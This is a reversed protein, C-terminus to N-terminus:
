LGWVLLLVFVFWDVFVGCVVVCGYFCGVFVVFCLGCRGCCCDVDFGDFFGCVVCYGDFIDCFGGCCLVCCCGFSFGCCSVGIDCCWGCCKDCFLNVNLNGSDFMGDLCGFWCWSNCGVSNCWCSYDNDGVVGWNWGVNFVDSYCCVVLWCGDCFWLWCLGCSKSIFGM